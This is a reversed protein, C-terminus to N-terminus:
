RGRMSVVFDKLKQTIKKRYKIKLYLDGSSGGNKGKEGMGALRVKQGAKIGPPIKVVLKKDMTKHYYPYPGGSEAFEPTLSIMTHVDKGKKPTTGALLRNLLMKPFGGLGGPLSYPNNKKGFIGPGGKFIFGKGHFGNRNFAFTKYKGGYFDSFIDDFGRLGFSRAMEEFIQNIDSGNFIDNESYNDRFHGYASAGYQARLRDYESRKGPDSLVAYAENISKMKEASKPDRKNRDPHYLFALKRYAEKIKKNDASEEVGLIQYFDTKQM